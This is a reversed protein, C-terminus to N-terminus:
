WPSTTTHGQAGYAIGYDGQVAGHNVHIYYLFSISLLAQTVCLAILLTRGVAGARPGTGWSGLTLWALWVYQLPFTVLLYYRHILLASATLLLGFGWMAASVTFATSSQRGIWFDRWEERRRWAFLAGRGLVILGTAILLIHLLLVFYTPRGAVIPYGLFESFHSRLSYWLSLGVPETAWRLWFKLELIRTWHFSATSRTGFQTWVTQVWPILPVLGVCIGAACGPWAVRRRDFLIAWTLFGAMLFFGTMHIQGLCTGLLGWVFAGWWQQRNWWGILMLLSFFPLVSPQWIKRHFLVALPNVSVLATAWLWPEREDAQIWCCAWVFLLVLALINLLQIARALGPPDTVAFAKALFLFVWQSMGPFPLGVSSRAGLWPSGGGWGVQQTQGFIWAEDGKYEIDQVWILRLVAGVVVAVMAVTLPSSLTRTSLLSSSIAHRRSNLKAM